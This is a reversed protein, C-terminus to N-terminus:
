PWDLVKIKDVLSRVKTKIISGRARHYPPM